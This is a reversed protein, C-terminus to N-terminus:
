GQSFCTPDPNKLIEELIIVCQDIDDTHAVSTTTHLNRVPVGLVTTPIGGKAISITLADTTGEDAVDLQLRSKKRKAARQVWADICPNSLMDADKITLTPGHGLVKTPNTNKDDANTVDVIIAYDPDIGHISTKAGYLGVEEQVTFVYFIEQKSRKLREAVKLLIYCGIRDDLAKGCVIKQSGLNLFYRNLNLYQGVQVGRSELEKKTLGTDIILDKVQPVETTTEANSIQATTIVGHLEGKKTTITVRDGIVNLPEIGGIMACRIDGNMDCGKIMLGIEDMHAVLMAKPSIGKKHAVVNGFKDVSVDDVFPRILKKILSRVEEENGSPGFTLSLKKLLEIDM